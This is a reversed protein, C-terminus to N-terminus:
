NILITFGKIEQQAKLFLDLIAQAKQTGLISKSQEFGKWEITLPLNVWGTLCDWLADLNEGYYSPLQLKKKLLHHFQELNNFESSDIIVTNM